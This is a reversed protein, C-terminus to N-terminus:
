MLRCHYTSFPVPHEKLQLSTGEKVKDLLDDKLQKDAILDLNLTESNVSHIVSCSFTDAM